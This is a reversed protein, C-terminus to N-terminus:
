FINVALSLSLSPLPVSLSVCLWHFQCPLEAEAGAQAEVKSRIHKLLEARLYSMAYVQTSWCQGVLTPSIPTPFLPLSSPAGMTTAIRAGPYKHFLTLLFGIERLRGTRINRMNGTVRCQAGVEGPTMRTTVVVSSFSSQPQKHTGHSLSDRAAQASIASSM